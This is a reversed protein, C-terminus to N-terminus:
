PADGGDATGEDAVDGGDATGEGAVDGGDATGEGAVDGGDQDDTPSPDSAISEDTTEAPTETVSPAAPDALVPEEGNAPAPTGRVREGVDRRPAADDPPVGLVRLAYQGIESFIPAAVESATTATKPEDVVVAIAVRPDYAPAFGAFTVVFRRNEPSGYGVTGAGDEFVKWATGTKGAVAYGPISANGGTGDAVVGVLMDTLEGAAAGGIVPKGPGSDVLHETGDPALLSRVLIPQRYSGGNAIASYAAVLQTANVTVGQGIPISGADSGYWDEPARVTGTAEGQFGIGTPQGFGFRNLYSHIQTPGLREAVKITGVNMSDALIQALPYPAAVRSTRDNFTKGGINVQPPVEITSESTLGLEEIAAAMTVTKLVSGPEFTDVLATNSKPVVCQNSDEDRSVTAMALIEGTPPDTMVATAGAAGTANCHEMLTDEAAFQLRNDIALAVDFGAEPPSVTWDGVSISGFRGREFEEVGPMGTMVNDYQSEVGYIGRKDPDVRGIIPRALNEAPYIRQEEVRVFVGAMEAATDDSDILAQVQSAVDGSVTRALLAYRDGDSEGALDVALETPDVGIVPGLLAATTESDGVLEPDAVIENSPTSSAFVFGNRDVIQGRYGALPRTGTRQDEGLTQLDESRVAQLDVLLAVFGAGIIAFVALLLILRNQPDLPNTTRRFITRRVARRRADRSSARRATM